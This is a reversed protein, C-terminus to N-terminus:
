KKTQEEDFDTINLKKMLRSVKWNLDILLLLIVVILVNVLWDPM